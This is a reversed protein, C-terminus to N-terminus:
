EKQFIENNMRNIYYEYTFKSTLKLNSDLIKWYDSTSLELAYLFNDKLNKADVKESADVLPPRESHGYFNLSKLEIRATKEGDNDPLKDDEISSPVIKPIM